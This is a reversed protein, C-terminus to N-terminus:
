VGGVEKVYGLLRKLGPVAMRHSAAWSGQLRNRRDKRGPCAARSGSGPQVRWKRSQEPLWPISPSFGGFRRGGPAMDEM